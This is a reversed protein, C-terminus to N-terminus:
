DCISRHIFSFSPHTPEIMFLTKMRSGSLYIDSQSRYFVQTVRCDLGFWRMCVSHEEIKVKIASDARLHQMLRDVM